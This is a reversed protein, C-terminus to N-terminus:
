SYKTETMLYFSKVITRRTENDGMMIRGKKRLGGIKRQRIDGVNEVGISVDQNGVVCTLHVAFM